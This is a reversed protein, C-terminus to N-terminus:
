GKEIKMSSRPERQDVRRCVIFLSCSLRTHSPKMHSLTERTVGSPDSYINLGERERCEIRESQRIQGPPHTDYIGCKKSMTPTDPYSGTDQKEERSSVREKDTNDNV